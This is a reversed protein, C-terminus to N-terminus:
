GSAPCMATSARRGGRPDAQPSRWPTRARSSASVQIGCARSATADRLSVLQRRDETADQVDAIDRLYVPVDERTM